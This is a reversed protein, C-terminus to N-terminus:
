LTAPALAWDAGNEFNQLIVPSLPSLFVPVCRHLINLHFNLNSAHSVLKASMNSLAKEDWM